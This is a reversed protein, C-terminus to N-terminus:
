ELSNELQRINDNTYHNYFDPDNKLHRLRARAEQLEENINLEEFVGM